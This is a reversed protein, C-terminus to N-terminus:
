LVGGVLRMFGVDKMAAAEHELIKPSSCTRKRYVVLEVSDVVVTKEFPVVSMSLSIPENVGLNSAQVPLDSVCTTRM